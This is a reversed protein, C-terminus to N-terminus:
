RMVKLMTLRVGAAGRQIEALAGEPTQDAAEVVFSLAPPETATRVSEADIGRVRRAAARVSAAARGAAERSDMGAFVVARHRALARTVTAHDYTAAVKDDICVGCARAAPAVITALLLPALIAIRRM